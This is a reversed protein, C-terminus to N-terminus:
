RGFKGELRWVTEKADFALPAGAPPDGRYGQCLATGDFRTGIEYARERGAPYASESMPDSLFSADLPVASALDPASSGRLEGGTVVFGDFGEALAAEACRFILRSGVDRRSEGTAGSVEVRFANGSLRSVSHSATVAKEKQWATLLSCGPGPLSAAALLALLPFLGSGAPRRRM